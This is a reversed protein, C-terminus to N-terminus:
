LVSQFLDYDNADFPAAARDLAMVASIALDIRRTSYKTEKTIRQGRSDVRLVANDIHRRLRPDGSHTLGGNLVAEYFRATAPTLRSSTQPYEVVPM